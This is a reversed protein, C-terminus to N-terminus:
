SLCNFGMADCSAFENLVKYAQEKHSLKKYKAIQHTCAFFQAEISKFRAKFEPSEFLVGSNSRSLVVPDLTRTGKIPIM